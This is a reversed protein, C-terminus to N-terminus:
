MEVSHHRDFSSRVHVHGHPTCTPLKSTHPMSHAKPLLGPTQASPPWLISTPLTARVLHSLFTNACAAAHSYLARRGSASSAPTDGVSAAVKVRREGGTSSDEVMGFQTLAPGANRKRTATPCELRSVCGPADKICRMPTLRASSYRVRVHVTGGCGHVMCKRPALATPPAMQQCTARTRLPVMWVRLASFWRGLDVSEM